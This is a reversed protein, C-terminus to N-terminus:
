LIGQAGLNLLLGHGLHYSLDVAYPSSSCSLNSHHEAKFFAVMCYEIIMWLLYHVEAM